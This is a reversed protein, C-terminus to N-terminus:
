FGNYQMYIERNSEVLQRCDAEDVAYKADYQQNIVNQAVGHMMSIYAYASRQIDSEEIEELEAMLELFKINTDAANEATMDDYLMEAQMVIYDIARDTRVEVDGLVEPEIVEQQSQQTTIEAASNKQLEYGGRGWFLIVLVLIIAASVFYLWSFTRANKEKREIKKQLDKEEATMEQNVQAQSNIRNTRKSM